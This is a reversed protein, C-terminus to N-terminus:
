QGVDYASFNLPARPLGIHYVFLLIWWLTRKQDNFIGKNGEKWLYFVKLQEEHFVIWFGIHWQMEWDERDPVFTVEKLSHVLLALQRDWVWALMCIHLSAVPLPYSWKVSGNPFPFVSLGVPTVTGCSCQYSVASYVPIAISFYWRASM